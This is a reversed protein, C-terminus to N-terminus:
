INLYYSYGTYTVVRSEYLAKIKSNVFKLIDNESEFSDKLVEKVEDFIEFSTFEGEKELIKNSVVLDPNIKM